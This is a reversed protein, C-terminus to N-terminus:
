SGTDVTSLSRFCLTPVHERPKSTQQQQQKQKNTQKHLLMYHSQMHSAYFGPGLRILHLMHRVWQHQISEGKKRTTERIKQIVLLIAIKHGTTIKAM